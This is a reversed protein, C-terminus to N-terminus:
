SMCNKILLSPPKRILRRKENHIWPLLCPSFSILFYSNAFVDGFHRVLNSVNLARREMLKWIMGKERKHAAYIISQITPVGFHHCIDDHTEPNSFMGREIM